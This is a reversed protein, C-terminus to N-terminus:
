WIHIVSSFYVLQVVIVQSWFKPRLCYCVFLTLVTFLAARYGARVFRMALSRSFVALLSQHFVLLLWATVVIASRVAECCVLYYNAITALDGATKSINRKLRIPTVILNSRDPDLSTMLWTVMQYGMSWKYHLHDKPVSGWGRDRVTESINLTSHFAIISM